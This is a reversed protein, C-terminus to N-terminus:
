ASARLARIAELRDRAAAEGQAIVRELHTFDGWFIEGVDPRLLVDAQDAEANNLHQSAIMEMRSIVDFGNQLPVTKPMPTRVDVALVKDAGLRRCAAVPVASVPAADAYLTGNWKYPPFVVGIATGAALAPRLPGELFTALAGAGLDLANCALPLRAEGFSCDPVLDQIAQHAPNKRLLSRRFSIVNSIAATRLYRLIWGGVGRRPQLGHNRAPRPHMGFLRSGAFYSVVREHLAEADPDLAYLAGLIAGMSSGAVVDVAIGEAALVRLVGVHVFARSGGGGLALGLRTRAPQDM